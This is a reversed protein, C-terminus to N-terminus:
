DEQVDFENHKSTDFHTGLVPATYACVLGAAALGVLLTAHTAALALGAIMFRPAWVKFLMLHRRMVGAFVSASIPVVSCTAVYGLAARALYAITPMPEGQSKVPTGDAAAEGMGRPRPTHRWLVLLPVALVVLMSPGLTNVVVFAPAFPYTLQRFGVFAARWQISSVAAQHGTSFFALHALLHLTALVLPSVTEVKCWARMMRPGGSVLEALCLLVCLLLGVAVQGMPQALLFVFSSVFLVLLLYHTGLLNGVGTLVARQAPAESATGAVREMRLELPPPSGPWVVLISALTICIDFVALPRKLSNSWVVWSSQRRGSAGASLTDLAWYLAGAVLTSRLLWKVYLQVLRTDSDTLGAALGVMTPVAWWAVLAALASAWLSNTTSGVAAAAVAAPGMAGSSDGAPAAVLRAYFTTQCSPGQEERCVRITMLIRTLVIGVVALTGTRLLDRQSAAKEGATGSILGAFRMRTGAALALLLLVQLLTSTVKDEWAIFSNSGFSLAHLIVIVAPLLMGVSPRLARVTKPLNALLVINSLLIFVFSVFSVITDWGVVAILEQVTTKDNHRVGVTGLAMAIVPGSIVLGLVLARRLAGAAARLGDVAHAKSGISWRLRFASLTGLVLLAVGAAMSVLDFQAWVQKARALALRTYAFYAREATRTLPNRLPSSAPLSARLWDARAARLWAAELESVFRNFESAHGVYRDLYTHIQLANIRLARLLVDAFLEPVVTGLSNFPIPLGHLLAFSPVFDIQQISRHVAADGLPRFAVYEDPAGLVTRVRGDPRLGTPLFLEDTALDDRPATFVYSGECPGSFSAGLDTQEVACRAGPACILSVFYNDGRAMLSTTTTIVKGAEFHLGGTSAGFSVQIPGDPLSAYCLGEEQPLPATLPRKAYAFFAAATELDGDGGHDGKADMGHDGFFIMLADDPLNEAVFRVQSDLEKLKRSFEAHGPGYRHGAHDLGLQHAVLLSWNGAETTRPATPDLFAHLHSQVGRDVTDLDEVHFSDYPFTWAPDFSDPFLSLWTDDGMFAMGADSTGNVSRRVRLQALLNDEGIETAGFNSGADIFTPLVGTTLAKLRQLTTTPPDAAFHSLLTHGPHAAQLDQVAPVGGALQTIVTELEADSANGSAFLPPTVFDYRLADVIFLLSRDFRAPLTCEGHTALVASWNSPTARGRSVLTSLAADIDTAGRPSDCRATGDLETRTLLFGQTFLVLGVIQTVAVFALLALARLVLPVVSPPADAQADDAPAAATPPRSPQPAPHRHRVNAM